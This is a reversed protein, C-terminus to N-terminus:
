GIGGRARRYLYEKLGMASSGANLEQKRQPLPANTSSRVEIRGISVMIDGGSMNKEPSSVKTSISARIYDPVNMAESPLSQSIGTRKHGKASKEVRASLMSVQITKEKGEQVLAAANRGHNNYIGEIARNIGGLHEDSSVEGKLKRVDRKLKSSPMIDNTEVAVANTGVVSPKTGAGIPSRSTDQGMGLPRNMDPKKPSKGSQLDILEESNKAIGKSIQPPLGTTPPETFSEHWRERTEQVIMSGRHTEPFPNDSSRITSSSVDMKGEHINASENHLDERPAIKRETQPVGAGATEDIIQSAAIIKDSSNMMDSSLPEFTSRLRPQLTEALNLSRAAINRLYDSMQEASGLLIAQAV